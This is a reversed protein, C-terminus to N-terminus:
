RSLARMPVNWDVDRDLSVRTKVAAYGRKRVKLWAGDKRQVRLALPTVGLRVGDLVVTAGEPETTVHLLVTGDEVRPPQVTMVPPPSAPPAPTTPVVAAAPPAPPNPARSTGRALVIIVTVVGLVVAAVALITVARRHREPIADIRVTTRGFWRRTSPM